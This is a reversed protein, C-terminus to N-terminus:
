NSQEFFSEPFNILYVHHVARTVATYLWRFFSRDPKQGPLYPADIFVNEWQGGQTKHCTLAYAFKVQLANFYPNNKVKEARRKRSPIDDYDLSVEDFLRQSENYSLSPSESTLTDLLLKVELEPEDPYDALRIVADAFHFSYVTEVKRIKLVEIIDGNAIFGAKSQAPLWFYNNRVVMLFDGADIENERFLIRSRIERNYINARKNSRTIVITQDDGTVSHATMLEDELEWGDLRRIDKFHGTDFLPLDFDNNQLKLRLRTANMLIGSNLSQRMVERLQLKRVSLRYATQLYHDDMAPSIDLGVPPLQAVDGILILSCNKGSKVYEVLDTLLDARAVFQGNDSSITGPIMSAEDVIFLTNTHLNDMRHLMVSGDASTRPQYIKKHITHAPKGSYLALVKAARGTPALLVTKIGIEPAAKVLASLLSTKGTGAYGNFLFVEDAERNLIFDALALILIRQGETPTFPFRSFILDEVTRINM